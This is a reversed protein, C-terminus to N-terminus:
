IPGSQYPSDLGRRDSAARVRHPHRRFVHAPDRLFLVRCPARAARFDVYSPDGAIPLQSVLRRGRVGVDRHEFDYPHLPALYPGLFHAHARNRARSSFRFDPIRLHVSDADSRSGREDGAGPLDERLPRRDDSLWLTRRAYPELMIAIARRRTATLSGGPM